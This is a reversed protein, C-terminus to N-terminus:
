SGDTLIVAGGPLVAVTHEFHASLSGDATVITWGDEASKVDKRGANIMPEIAFTMGCELRRGKGRPGFNPIQLDGEHMTTGVGHGTLERVVSFGNGEAHRQVAYGIDGTRSGPRIQAIGRHLCEETVRLLKRALASVEGVPYTRASDALYGNLEACIDITVLDGERLTRRSPIAHVIEDNVSMCTFAPYPLHGAPAYGLCPSTAGAETLMRAAIDELEGTTVGPRVAKATEHIVRHVLRGTQRMKQIEDQTKLLGMDAKEKRLTWM